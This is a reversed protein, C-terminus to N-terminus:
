RKQERPAVLAVTTDCRPRVAVSGAFALTPGLRGPVSVAPAELWAGAGGVGVTALVGALVWRWM